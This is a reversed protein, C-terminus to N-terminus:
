KARPRSELGYTISSVSLTTLVWIQAMQPSITGAMVGAFMCVFSIIMYILFM